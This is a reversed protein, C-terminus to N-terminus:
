VGRLPSLVCQEAVLIPLLDLVSVSLSACVCLNLTQSVVRLILAIVHLGETWLLGLISTSPCLQVPCATRALFRVFARPGIPHTMFWGECCHSSDLQEPLLFVKGYAYRLASSAIHEFDSANSMIQCSAAGFCVLYWRSGSPTLLFLVLQVALCYWGIHYSVLALPPLPSCRYSTTRASSALHLTFVIRCSFLEGILCICALNKHPLLVM